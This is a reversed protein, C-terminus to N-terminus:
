RAECSCGACAYLNERKTIEFEFVVPPRSVGTSTGDDREHRLQEARTNSACAPFPYRLVVSIEDLTLTEESSGGEGKPFWHRRNDGDFSDCDEREKM